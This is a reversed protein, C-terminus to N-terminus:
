ERYYAGDLHKDAQDFGYLYLWLASRVADPTIRAYKTHARYSAPTGYERGLKERAVENIHIYEVPGPSGECSGPQYSNFVIGIDSSNFRDSINDFFEQSFDPKLVRNPAINALFEVLFADRPHGRHRARGAPIWRRPRQKRGTWGACFWHRETRDRDDEM